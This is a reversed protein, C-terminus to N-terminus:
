RPRVRATGRFSRATVRSLSEKPVIAEINGGHTEITVQAERQLTADLRVSGAISELRASGIPGSRVDISGSVTRLSLDFAAGDFVIAGTATRARFVTPTGSVTVSGDMAEAVLSQPAGRVTIRGGVTSLDASSVLGEAEIDTAAGRVSVNAGAPVRVVLDAVDRPERQGGDPGLKIGSRTGGGFITLHAAVTGTVHVSDRDWGILRVRGVYNHVKVLGNPALAWGRDVRVTPAAPASQAGANASLVGLAVGLCFLHFRRRVSM